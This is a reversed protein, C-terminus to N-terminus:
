PLNIWGFQSLGNRVNIFYVSTQYRHNLIDNPRQFRVDDLAFVVDGPELGLQAAPSNPPPFRTLRAGITGGPYRVVEYSIGLNAAYLEGPTEPPVPAPAAQSGTERYDQAPSRPQVMVTHDNSEEIGGSGPPQPAPSVMSMRGTQPDRMWYMRRFGLHVDAESWRGLDEWGVERVRQNVDVVKLYYNGGAVRQEWSEGPRVFVPSGTWRRTQAGYIWIKYSDSPSLSNYFRYTGEASAVTTSSFVLILAFAVRLMARYGGIENSLIM